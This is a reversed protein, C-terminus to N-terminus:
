RESFMDGDQFGICVRSFIALVHSVLWHVRRQENWPIRSRAFPAANRILNRPCYDHPCRKSNPALLCGPIGAVSMSRHGQLYLTQLVINDQQVILYYLREGSFHDPLRRFRFKVVQDNWFPLM